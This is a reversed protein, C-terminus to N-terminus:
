AFRMFLYALECLESSHCPIVLMNVTVCLNIITQCINSNSTTERVDTVHM